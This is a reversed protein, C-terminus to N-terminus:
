NVTKVEIIGPFLYFKGTTIEICRSRSRHEKIKKFIKGKETIFQEGIVIDDILKYGEKPIDYQYLAKFLIPDTCTSAAPNKLYDRLAHEVELPFFGKGSFPMLIRQFHNKWENGHPSVKHHYDIWTTLHALEHLLTILLSYKNLNINVSIRHFPKEKSPSRYDGLVTKRERTLTLHIINEEFFPNLLDYSGEPIFQKLFHLPTEKKSM